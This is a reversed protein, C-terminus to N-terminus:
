RAAVDGWTAALLDAAREAIAVVAATPDASLPRPLVGVDAVRLGGVGRVRLEPDVVAEADGVPGMRCPGVQRRMSVVLTRIACEWYADSGPALAACQPLPPLHLRAGYKRFPAAEGLSVVRRVAERLTALDRPDTLLNGHLKPASFPNADRLELYGRSRPHLLVPIAQWTDAGSLSGFAPYYTKDAIRWSRRMANGSDSALSGGLSILEVDPVSEPEESTTKVYGLAEVLGPTALLGDGFQLWQVLNPLTAVKPELLSANTSDLRFVVGPFAVHDYLTRGVPVDAVVPIGLKALDAAPGIGSLLLLQASGVPGATLVAERRFRATHKVNNRVYEVAYARGTTPEVLVRTARAETLIHLNRRRKNPHLFAKATSLRHGRRSITQVYGFGLQEGANYDVTPSGQERGAALFAEVLGTKFPVNEVTLEGDRGRYTANRYKRLESRESRMFYPLMESYSWGYNGDQALRDWDQPRGRAYIMGNVVSHGGLARGRGAFCRQGESGLCVGPQHELTYPQVLDTDHLYPALYPVDSLLLEPRGAELLLVAARRSLRAALAAGATGGGVVVYEYEELPETLGKPLPYSDRLFDFPDDASPSGSPANNQPGKHLMFDMIQSPPGWSIYRAKKGRARATDPSPWLVRAQRFDEVENGEIDIVDDDDHAATLACLLTLLYLIKM